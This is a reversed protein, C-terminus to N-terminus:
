WKTYSVSGSIQNTNSAVACFQDGAPIHYIVGVGGTRVMGAQATLPYAGTLAVTGTDCPNTVQTGYEFTLTVTGGAMADWGTVYIGASSGSSVLAVATASSINIAASADAQIVFALNGSSEAGAPAACTPVASGATGSCGSGGGGGGGGGPLQAVATAAIGLLVVLPLYLRWRM